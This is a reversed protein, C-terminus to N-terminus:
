AAKADVIWASLRAPVTGSGLRETMGASITATFQDRDGREELGFRLPSGQCFGNALDKASSAESVVEDYEIALVDFGAEEVDVEVQVPDAYGHPIRDVFDPPDDPFMSRLIESLALAPSNSELGDWTSFLLRGSDALVRRIERYAGIRDPFFMVGFSCVVLDFRDARFPLSGADAQQWEAGPVHDAAYQVMGPNLDTAIIRADPLHEVLRSTVIGTGAAIELVRSAGIREARRALHEGYPAFLIPGLFRDYADPM